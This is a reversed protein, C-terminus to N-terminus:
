SIARPRGSAADRTAAWRVDSSGCMVPPAAPWGTGLDTGLETEAARGQLADGAGDRIGTELKGTKVVRGWSRGQHGDRAADGDSTGGAGSRGGEAAGDRIDTGLETGAALGFSLGM